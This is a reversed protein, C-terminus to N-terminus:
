QLQQQKSLAEDLAEQFELIQTRLQLFEQKVANFNENFESSKIVSGPAFEYPIVFEDEAWASVVVLSALILLNLKNKMM